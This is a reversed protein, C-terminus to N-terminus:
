GCSSVQGTEELVFWGIGPTQVFGVGQALVGKMSSSWKEGSCRVSEVTLKAQLDLVVKEKSRAHGNVVNLVPKGSIGGPEVQALIWREALLRHHPLKVSEHIGHSVSKSDPRYVYELLGKPLSETGKPPSPPSLLASTHERWDRRLDQWTNGVNGRSKGNAQSFGMSFSIDTIKATIRTRAMTSTRNEARMQQALVLGNGVAGHAEAWGVVEGTMGVIFYVGGCRTELRWFERNNRGDLPQIERVMEERLDGLLQPYGGGRMTVWVYFRRIWFRIATEFQGELDPDALLNKSVGGFWLGFRDPGVYTLSSFAIPVATLTLLRWVREMWSTRFKEIARARRSVRYWYWPRTDAVKEDIRNVKFWRKTRKGPFEIQVLHTFALTSAYRYNRSLGTFCRLFNGPIWSSSTHPTFGYFATLALVRAIREVQRRHSYRPPSHIISVSIDLDQKGPFLDWKALGATTNRDVNRVSDGSHDIGGTSESAVSGSAEFILTSDGVSEPISFKGTLIPRLGRFQRPTTKVTYACMGSSNGGVAPTTSLAISPDRQGPEGPLDGSPFLFSKTHAAVRNLPLFPKRTKSLGENRITGPNLRPLLVVNKTHTVRQDISLLPENTEPIGGQTTRSDKRSLLLVGGQSVTLGVSSATSRPTQFPLQPEITAIMTSLPEDAPRGNSRTAGVAIKQASSTTEQRKHEVAATIVLDSSIEPVLYSAPLKAAVPADMMGPAGVVKM